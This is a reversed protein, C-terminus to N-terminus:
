PAPTTGSSRATGSVPLSAPRLMPWIQVRQARPSMGFRERYCTSFHQTSAFGCAVAIHSVSMSTQLLLHQAHRLRLQLYYRAPVTDLYKRFLRELQRRSVGVHTALEDISLPEEINAEMLAVSESLTPQLRGFRQQLPIRQLENPGRIRECLFEESIAVALEKGHDRAILNLMLDLPATGGSCTYRDRDVEFLEETVIVAPFLERLSVTNEWHIASRYGNLLGARGLVWSGTCLAGLAINRRALRQLPARLQESWSQEVNVGGCVFLADIDPAAALIADPKLLIGNSAAVPAGDVTLLTWRYREAGSLHNAMRLPEIASTLAIMSYDQLLLFAFHRVVGRPDNGGSTGMGSFREGDVPREVDVSM